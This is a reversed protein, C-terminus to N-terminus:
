SVHMNSCLPSSPSGTVQTEISWGPKCRCSTLPRVGCQMPLLGSRQQTAAWAETQSPSVQLHIKGALRTLHDDEAGVPDDVLGVQGQLQLVVGRDAAQGGLGGRPQAPCRLGDQEPSAM